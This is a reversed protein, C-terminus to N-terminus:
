EERWLLRDRIIDEVSRSDPPYGVVNATDVAEPISGAPPPPLIGVPQLLGQTKMAAGQSRLDADISHKRAQNPNAGFWSIPKTTPM